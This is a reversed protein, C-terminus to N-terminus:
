CMTKGDVGIWRECTSIDNMAFAMTEEKFGSNRVFKSAKIGIKLALKSAIKCSQAVSSKVTLILSLVSM